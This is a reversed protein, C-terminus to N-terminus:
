GPPPVRDPPPDVEPEIRELCVATALRYLWIRVPGPPASRQVEDWGRLLAEGVADHAALPCGLM